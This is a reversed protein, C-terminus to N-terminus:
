RGWRGWRRPAPNAALLEGFFAEWRDIVSELGFCEEVFAFARDGMARREETSRSMLRLMSSSLAAADGVPSLWAACDEAIADRVGPADTAVMPLGAAAADLLALPLGEWLSSLVLADAAQMWSRLDSVYGLWHVRDAIELQRALARLSAEEVGAGAIALEAAHPLGAFAKLLTPYDKVRELRGAALWLFHAGAGLGLETGPELEGLGLETQHEQRSAIREAATPPADDIPVGNPTVRLTAGCVMGAAKWAEAASRSVATVADPLRASAWYALRRIPGGTGTSHITDVMVRVPALLRSWRALWAAHPLHAHVVDPRNKRFWAISRIWGFPDKLGHRMGLYVFEIEAAVTLQGAINEALDGAVNNDACEAINNDACEAVNEAINQAVNEGSGEYVGRGGSLCVVTVRWGRRRFGNALLLVQREAGGIRKLGPIVLALHNM